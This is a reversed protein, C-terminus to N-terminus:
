RDCKSLAGGQHSRFAVTNSEYFGLLSVQCGEDRTGPFDSSLELIESFVPHNVTPEMRSCDAIIAILSIELTKYLFIRRLIKLVCITELELLTEKSRM